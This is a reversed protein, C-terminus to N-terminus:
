PGTQGENYRSFFDRRFQPFRGEIIAKRADRMLNVLFLTTGAARRAALIEGCHLPAKHIGEYFEQLHLLRMHPRDAHLGKRFRQKLNM